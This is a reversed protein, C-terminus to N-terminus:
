PVRSTHLAGDRRRYQFHFPRSHIFLLALQLGVPLQRDKYSPSLRPPANINALMAQELNQSASGQTLDLKSTHNWSFVYKFWAANVEMLGPYVAQNDLWSRGVVSPVADTSLLMDTTRNVSYAVPYFYDDQFLSHLFATASQITRQTHTPRTYVLSSNYQTSPCLPSEVSSLDNYRSRAFEGIARVMKVREGTLEGCPYLTGCIETKNDNILASREGHRHVVQVM